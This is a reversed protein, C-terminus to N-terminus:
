HIVIEDVAFIRREVLVTIPIELVNLCEVQREEALLHSVQQVTLLNFQGTEVELGAFALEAAVFKLELVVSNNDHFTQM